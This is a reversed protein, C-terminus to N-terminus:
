SLPPFPSSIGRIGVKEVHEGEPLPHASRPWRGFHCDQRLILRNRAWFPSSIRNQPPFGGRRLNNSYLSKRRNPRRLPSSFSNVEWKIYTTISCRSLVFQRALGECGPVGSEQSESGVRYRPEPNTWDRVAAEPLPARDTRIPRPVRVVGGARM